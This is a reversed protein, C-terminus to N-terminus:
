WFRIKNAEATKYNYIDELQRLYEQKNTSKKITNGLYSLKRKMRDHSYDKHKFCQVMALVFTRDTTHPSLEKLSHIWDARETGEQLNDVKMRGERFDDYNKGGWKGFLLVQGVSFSFGYKRIFGAFIKYDHLGAECWANLFDYATWKDQNDNLNAITSIDMDDVIVYHIPLSLESCAVYRHQGDLIKLDQNVLIPFLHTMDNNEIAKVLKRFKKRTIKRNGNLFSFMSYSRTTLRTPVSSSINSTTSLINDVYDDYAATEKGKM